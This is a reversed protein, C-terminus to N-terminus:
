PLSTEHKIWELYHLQGDIIPWVVVCPCEYSHMQTILAIAQRQKDATTKMIAGYEFAQERKGEWRYYSTVESSLNACAILHAELLADIVKEAEEKTPFTVYLSVYEM